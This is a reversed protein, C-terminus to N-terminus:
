DGGAVCCSYGSAIHKVRLGKGQNVQNQSDYTDSNLGHADKGGKHVMVFKVTSQNHAGISACAV